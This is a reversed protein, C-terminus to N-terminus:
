AGKERSNTKKLLDMYQQRNEVFVPKPTLNEVVHGTFSRKSALHSIPEKNRDLHRIRSQSPSEKKYNRYAWLGCTKCRYRKRPKQLLRKRFIENEHDQECTYIYIPM